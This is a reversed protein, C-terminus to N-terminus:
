SHCKIIAKVLAGILSKDFVNCVSNVVIRYEGNNCSITFKCYNNQLWNIADCIFWNNDWFVDDNSIIKCVKRLDNM